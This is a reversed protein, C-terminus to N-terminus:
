LYELRERIIRSEYSVLKNLELIYYINADNKKMEENIKELIQTENKMLETLFDTQKERETRLLVM